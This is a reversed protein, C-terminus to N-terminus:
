PSTSSRMAAVTVAERSKRSASAGSFGMLRYMLEGPPLTDAPRAM